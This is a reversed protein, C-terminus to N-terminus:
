GWKVITILDEVAKSLGIMLAQAVVAHGVVFENIHESKLFPLINAYNLGGGLRVALGSKRATEAAKLIKDIEAQREIETRVSTYSLAYIQIGDVEARAAAKIDNQEPELLLFLRSGHGQIQTFLERDFEEANDPSLGRETYQEGVREPRVTVEHPKVEAILSLMETKPSINLNLRTKCTEKLIYLDRERIGRRDLRLHIALGDIGVLEAMAAAAVPDPVRLKRSERLLAIQDLNLYLKKM